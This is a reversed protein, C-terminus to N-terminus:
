KQRLLWVFGTMRSTLIKEEEQWLAAYAKQMKEDPQKDGSADAAQKKGLEELKKAWAAHQERAAAETLGAAPTRITTSDGILLDLKGDGDVDDVWVRTASQPGAIHADGFEIEGSPMGHGGSKELLTQKSGWKPATKTGENVFLFVGGMASGSVLDLDGDGDWDVLCPDGHMDVQLPKGDRELWSHAAAFRGGGEGRYFAFTGAFNGVVLDLKGDGDLDAAFPRTCIKEIIADGRDGRPTLLLPKGDASCVEVAKQFAGGKSGRLLWFLGAMDPDHRSYCGSLIDIAGDGDLDM